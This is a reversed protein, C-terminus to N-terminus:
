LPQHFQREQQAKYPQWNRLRDAMQEREARSAALRAAEEADLSCNPEKVKKPKEAKRHEKVGLQKRIDMDSAKSNIQHESLIIGFKAAMMEVLIRTATTPYHQVLYDRYEQTWM